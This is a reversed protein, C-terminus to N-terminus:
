APEVVFPGDAGLPWAQVAGANPVTVLWLMHVNLLQVFHWSLLAKIRRSWEDVSYRFEIGADDVDYPNRCHLVEASIDYLAVFEDRTLFGDRVRDCHRRGPAIERSPQVPVPYFHPNVNQVFGLMRRANWETAFGPRAAAYADRNASLSSFATEELANRLQLFAVQRNLEADGTDLCRAAVADAISVRHRVREMCGCYTQIDNPVM